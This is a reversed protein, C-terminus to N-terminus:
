RAARGRTLDPVILEMAILRPMEERKDVRAKVVCSGDEVLQHSVAAYTQPFFMVDISGGELDELQVVAWPSAPSPSRARHDGAVIGGLTVIQAM